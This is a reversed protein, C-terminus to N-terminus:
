DNKKLEDYFLGLHLETLLTSCIMLANSIGFQVCVRSALKSGLETFECEKITIEKDESETPEQVEEVQEVVPEIALANLGIKEVNGDDFNVIAVGLGEFVKGVTGRRIENNEIIIVRAQETIKSM